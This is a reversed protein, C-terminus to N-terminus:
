EAFPAVPSAEVGAARCAEIFRALAASTFGGRRRIFVNEVHAEQASLDHVAIRGAQWAPEVVARPLLTVGIGAAACGVIGDITGFELVRAGAIGRLELLRELRQRYSCGARLVLIKLVREGQLATDLSRFAPATVVVLEESIIPEEILDPHHVPGVVLAGELRHEVVETILEATTGTKLTLDVDPYTTSYSVLVPPLRRAATTELSGIRLPGRPTSADTVVQAAEAILVGVKNAYPLLMTGASTLMVGRSHRHFLPVGLEQELLRIRATVNSQVTCLEGAARTIGGTRAVAEFVMLDTSDM